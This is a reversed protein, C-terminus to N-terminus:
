NQPSRVETLNTTQAVIKKKNHVAMLKKRKYFFKKINIQAIIM